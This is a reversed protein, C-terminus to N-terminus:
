LAEEQRKKNMYTLIAYLIAMGLGVGMLTNISSGFAEFVDMYWMLSALGCILIAGSNANKAGFQMGCVLLIFVCLYSIPKTFPLNSGPFSVGYNKTITGFDDHDILVRVQYDQGIYDTLTFTYSQINTDAYESSQNILTFTGNQETQGIQFQLTNTNELSDNYYVTVTGADDDKTITINVDQNFQTAPLFTNGTAIFELFIYYESESPTVYDTQTQGDYTTEFRYRTQQDLFFSDAGDAGVDRDFISTTSEEVYIKINANYTQSLDKDTVIFRVYSKEYYQGQGEILQLIVDQNISENKGTTVPIVQSDEYGDKTVIIYYTTSNELGNFFYYGTSATVLSDAYTDNSLTVIANEIENYGTDTSEYVVGYINNGITAPPTVVISFSNTDTFDSYALNVSDYSRVRWYYDDKYLYYSVTEEATEYDKVISQFSPDTAIQINYTTANGSWVFPVYETYPATDVTYVYSDTPSVLNPPQNYEISINIDHTTNDYVGTYVTIKGTSKDFTSNKPDGDIKAAIDGYNSSYTSSLTYIISGNAFNRYPANTGNIWIIETEINETIGTVPSIEQLSVNYDFRESPAASLQFGDIDVSSTGPTLTDGADGSSGLGLVFSGNNYCNVDIDLDTIAYITTSLKANTWGGVDIIGTDYTINEGAYYTIPSNFTGDYASSCGIFPILLFLFLLIKLKM